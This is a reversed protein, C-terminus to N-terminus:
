GYVVEKESLQPQQCCVLVLQPVYLAGNLTLTKGTGCWKSSLKASSDAIVISEEPIEELSTFWNRQCIMHRTCASDLILSNKLSLQHKPLASLFFAIKDPSDSAVAAFQRYGQGNGRSWNTRGRGRSRQGRRNIGGRGTSANTPSASPEKVVSPCEKSVHGFASCKFCVVNPSKLKSTLSPMALYNVADRRKGRSEELLLAQVIEDKKLKGSGLSSTYGMIFTEMSAPLGWLLEWSLRDDDFNRGLDALKTCIDEFRGVYTQMAETDQKELRFLERCLRMIALGSSPEYIKKVREWLAKASKTSVGLGRLIKPEISLGITSYAKKEDNERKALVDPKAREEQTLSDATLIYDVGQQMLVLEVSQAWTAYNSGHFKEIHLLSSSLTNQTAM